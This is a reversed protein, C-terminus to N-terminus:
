IFGELDHKAKTITEMVDKHELYKRYNKVQNKYLDSENTSISWVYRIPPITLPFSIPFSIGGSIQHLETLTVNHKLQNNAYKLASFYAITEANINNSETKVREWCDIIWHLVSGLKFDLDKRLEANNHDTKVHEYADIFERYSSRLAREFM